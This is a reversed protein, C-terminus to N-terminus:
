IVVITYAHNCSTLTIEVSIETIIDIPIAILLPKQTKGCVCPVLVQQDTELFLSSLALSTPIQEM